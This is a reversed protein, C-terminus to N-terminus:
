GRAALPSRALLRFSADVVPGILLAFAITGVGFTGGLVIGICLAVLELAARVLRIRRGTRVAGALMLSDRPGAGLDAGIYLASAPGTLAIGAALLGIRVALPESGLDTVAEVSTLLQIFTGVLVANAVTGIGPPAGLAWALCLVVLGVAINAVGFSLPSHHSLGQNLVDWPSLGLKSELILVIALAFLFLGAVLSTGRVALGGRVRPHAKVISEPPPESM